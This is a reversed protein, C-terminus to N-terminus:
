SINIKMEIELDDTKKITIKIKRRKNMAACKNREIM